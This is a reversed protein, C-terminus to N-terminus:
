SNRIADQLLKPIQEQNVIALTRARAQRSLRELFAIHGPLHITDWRDLSFQILQALTIAPSLPRVESNGAENIQPFYLTSVPAPAAYTLGLKHLALHYFEGPLIAPIYNALIPLHAVSKPRISFGGPTPLAYIGDPREELLLTDNSLVQWGNLALNLVTTSKGCGAEGVFIAARGERVAASAHVLYYGERRLFPSLSTFLLDHLRGYQLLRTTIYGEIRQHLGADPRIRVQGGDKFYLLFSDPEQYVYLTGVDDPLQQNANHFIPPKQPLPPLTTTLELYIELPHTQDTDGPWLQGPWGKLFQGAYQNVLSSNSSLHLSLRGLNFSTTTQEAAATPDNDNKGMAANVNM